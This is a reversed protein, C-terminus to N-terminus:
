PQPAEAELQDIYRRVGVGSAVEMQHLQMLGKRTDSAIKAKDCTRLRYQFLWYTLEKLEGFGMSDKTADYGLDKRFAEILSARPARYVRVFAEESFDQQYRNSNSMHRKEVEREAALQLAEEVTVGYFYNLYGRYKDVGMLDRFSSADFESPLRGFFLLDERENEPILDGVAACLREALLLWDFAEGGVFYNLVRGGYSERAGTWGAVANLLAEPWSLGGEIAERFRIAPCDGTASSAGAPAWQDSSM